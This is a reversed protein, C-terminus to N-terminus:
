RASVSAPHRHLHKLLPKPLPPSMHQVHVAADMGQPGLSFLLSFQSHSDLRLM